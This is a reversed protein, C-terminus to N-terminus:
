VKTLTVNGTLYNYYEAIFYILCTSSLLSFIGFSLIIFSSAHNSPCWLHKLSAFTNFDNICISGITIM